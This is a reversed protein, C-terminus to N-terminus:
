RKTSAGQRGKNPFYLTDLEISNAPIIMPRGVSAELEHKWGDALSRILEDPLKRYSDRCAHAWFMYGLQDGPRAAPIANFCIIDDIGSYPGGKLCRSALNFVTEPGISYDGDQALFLLGVADEMKLIKKTSKIQKNATRIRSAIPERFLSIVQHACELPLDRLNVQGRGYILPVPKRQDVWSQYLQQLKEAMEPSESQNKELRKLEGVVRYQPFVFDANKPLDVGAPLLDSVLSGGVRRVVRALQEEVSLRLLSDKPSNVNM